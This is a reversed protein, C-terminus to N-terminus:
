SIPLIASGVEYSQWSSNTQLNRLVPGSVCYACQFYKNCLFVLFCFLLLFRSLLHLQVAAPFLSKKGPEKRETQRKIGGHWFQSSPSLWIQTQIQLLNSKLWPYLSRPLLHRMARMQSLRVRSAQAEHPIQMLESNLHYLIQRCHLLGLNSGQILLVGQLLSHCDVGTNKGPSDWPCLLRTPSLGHPRLLNPCSQAM